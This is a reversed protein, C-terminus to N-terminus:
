FVCVCVCVLLCPKSWAPHRTGAAVGRLPWEHFALGLQATQPWLRLTRLLGHMVCKLGSVRSFSSARPRLLPRLCLGWWHICIHDWVSSTDRSKVPQCTSRLFLHLNKKSVLCLQHLSHGMSIPHDDATTSYLVKQWANASWIRPCHEVSSSKRKGQMCALPTLHLPKCYLYAHCRCYLNQMGNTTCSCSLISAQDLIAEQNPKM